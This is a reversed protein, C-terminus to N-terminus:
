AKHNNLNSYAFLKILKEGETMGAKCSQVLRSLVNDAAMKYFKM